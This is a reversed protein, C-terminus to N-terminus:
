FSGEQRDKTGISGAVFAPIPNYGKVNTKWGQAAGLTVADKLHRYALQSLWDRRSYPTMEAGRIVPAHIIKDGEKLKSNLAEVKDYPV